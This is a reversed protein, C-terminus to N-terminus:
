VLEYVLGLLVWCNEDETEAPLLSQLMLVVLATDAAVLFGDKFDEVLQGAALATPAASSSERFVGGLLAVTAAFAAVTVALIIRTRTGPERPLPQRRRASLRPVPVLRAAGQREHECRRRGSRRHLQTRRRRRRRDGDR